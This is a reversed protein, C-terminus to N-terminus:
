RNLVWWAAAALILLGALLLGILMGRGGSPRSSVTRVPIAAVRAELEESAQRLDAALEAASQYRREVSRSLARELIRDLAAPLSPNRITPRVFTGHSVAAGSTPPAPYPPEGVFMTYFVAGLSFLDSRPDPAVGPAREPAASTATSSGSPAPEGIAALPVGVDFLKVQDKPTIAVTALSIDGHVLGLSHVEALGDALQTAVELARRPNMPRGALVKDLSDGAVFETVIYPGSEDEAIEYVSAVNPHSITTATRAAALADGTFRARDIRRILVTRGAHLDRARIPGGSATRDELIRYQGISDPV